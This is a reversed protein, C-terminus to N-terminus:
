ISSRTGSFLTAFSIFLVSFSFLFQTRRERDLKIRPGILRPHRSFSIIEGRENKRGKVDGRGQSRASDRSRANPNPCASYFVSIYIFFYTEICAERRSVNQM